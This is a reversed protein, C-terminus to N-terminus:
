NATGRKNDYLVLEIKQRLVTVKNETFFAAKKNISDLVVNFNHKVNFQKTAYCKVGPGLNIDGSISSYKWSDGSLLLEIFKPDGILTIHCEYYM